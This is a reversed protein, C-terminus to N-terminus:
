LKRVKKPRKYAMQISKDIEVMMFHILSQENALPKDIFFYEVVKIFLITCWGAYVAFTQLSKCPSQPNKKCYRYPFDQLIQLNERCNRCDTLIAPFIQLYELNKGASIASFGRLTGTFGQLCKCHVVGYM